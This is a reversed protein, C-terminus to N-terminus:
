LDNDLPRRTQSDIFFSQQVSMDSQNSFAVKALIGQINLVRQCVGPVEDALAAMKLPRLKQIVPRVHRGSWSSLRIMTSCPPAETLTSPDTISRPPINSGLEFASGNTLKSCRQVKNQILRRTQKMNPLQQTVLAHCSSDIFLIAEGM